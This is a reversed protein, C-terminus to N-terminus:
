IGKEFGDLSSFHAGVQRMGCSQFPGISVCKNIRLFLHIIKTLGSDFCLLSVKCDCLLLLFDVLWLTGVLSAPYM